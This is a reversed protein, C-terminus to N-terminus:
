YIQNRTEFDYILETDIVPLLQQRYKLMSGGDLCHRKLYLCDDEFREQKNLGVCLFIKYGANKLIQLKTKHTTFKGCPYSYIDTKGIVTLIEDTYKQTDNLVTECNNESIQIHGFSHSAFHYNLQKLKSVLPKVKEIEKLHNPNDKNIRYGLIGNYGTPCIIGRANNVSFDPHKKIFTELIPISEKDYEIQPNNSATYSAINGKDDLILKDSMGKNKTDFSMDDLSLIFPKKGVPLYLDKKTVTEGVNYCDYIDVLVYNHEYMQNLFREFEKYTVCYKYFNFRYKNEKNLAIEPRNILQHTFFNEITGKYLYTDNAMANLVPKSTISNANPLPVFVLILVLYLIVFKFKKKM